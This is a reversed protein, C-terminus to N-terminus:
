DGPSPGLESPIMRYCTYRTKPRYEEIGLEALRANLVTHKRLDTLQQSSMSLAKLLDKFRFEVNPSKEFHAILCNILELVRGTPKPIEPIWEVTQCGPFVNTLQENIGRRSAAILYVDCSHSSGETSKRVSGRCAAQLIGHLSEGLATKDVVADVVPGPFTVGSAASSTAEYDIPRYFLTGALIIHGVDKFENTATHYGWTLYSVKPKSSASNHSLTSDILAKLDFDERTQPKHYIVLWHAEPSTNIVDSIAVAYRSPNSKISSKGGGKNWWHVTLNSYDKLATKIPVLTKRRAKWLDYTHRVRASADLIVLPTLDSPLTDAFGVLHPVNYQDRRVVPKEERSSVLLRLTEQTGLSLSNRDRLISLLPSEEFNGFAEYTDIVDGDNANQLDMQLKVLRERERPYHRALDRHTAAIDDSSLCLAEAPLLSEDWIRVARPSGQYHFASVTKFPVEFCRRAIMQHTTLLIQATASNGSGLSQLEVNLKKHDSVLIAYLNKPVGLAKLGQTIARIENKKSVGVLAGIDKHSASLSLAKLFAIVAQSKGVGPDLSSVYYKQKLQGEAMKALHLLVDSLGERQEKTPYHHYGDFLDRLINQSSEFLSNM